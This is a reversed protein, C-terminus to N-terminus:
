LFFYLKSFWPNTEDEGRNRMPFWSAVSFLPCQGCESFLLGPRSPTPGERGLFASPSFACPNLLSAHSTLPPPLSCWRGSVHFEPAEVPSGSAPLHGWLPRPSARKPCLDDTGLWWWGESCGWPFTAGPGGAEPLKTRGESLFAEKCYFLANLLFITHSSPTQWILLSFFGALM